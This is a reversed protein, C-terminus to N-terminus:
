ADKQAGLLRPLRKLLSALSLPYRWADPLCGRSAQYFAVHVCVWQWCVRSAVETLVSTKKCRLQHLSPVPFRQKPTLGQLECRASPGGEMRRGDGEWLCIFASFATEVSQEVEHLISRTFACARGFQWALSRTYPM